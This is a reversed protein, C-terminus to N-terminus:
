QSNDQDPELGFVAGFSSALEMIGVLAVIEVIEATSFHTKLADFVTDSVAGAKDVMQSAFELAAREAPDFAAHDARDLAGIQEEGVGHNLAYRRHSATSYASNRARAVSYAIMEKLGRPLLGTDLAANFYARHAALIAPQHALLRYMGPVRGRTQRLQDFVPRLEEPEDIPEIFPLRPM